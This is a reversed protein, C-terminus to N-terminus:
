EDSETIQLNSLDDDCDNVTSQPPWVFSWILKGFLRIEVKLSVFNELLRVSRVARRQSRTIM